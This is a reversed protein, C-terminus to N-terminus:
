ITDFSLDNEYNNANLEQKLQNVQEKLAKKSETLTTIEVDKM